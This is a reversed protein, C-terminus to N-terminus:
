LAVQGAQVTAVRVPGTYPQGAVMRGGTHSWFRPLDATAEWVNPAVEIEFVAPAAPKPAPRQSPLVYVHPTPM